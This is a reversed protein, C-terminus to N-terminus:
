VMARQYTGHSDKDFVCYVRDFPDGNAKEDRYRDRAEHFIKLPESGCDGCIEINASNLHYHDKLGAFYRPETKEGECVVLVKPYPQRIAKKRKLDAAKKARRKHFLNDTGM